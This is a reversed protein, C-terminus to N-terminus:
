QGYFKRQGCHTTKWAGCWDGNSGWHETDDCRCERPPDSPVSSSRPARMASSQSSPSSSSGARRPNSASPRSTTRTNCIVNSSRMQPLTRRRVSNKNTRARAHSQGSCQEPRKTNRRYPADFIKCRTGYKVVGASYPVINRAVM